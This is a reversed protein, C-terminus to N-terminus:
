CTAKSLQYYRHYYINFSLFITLVLQEVLATWGTAVLGIFMVMPIAVKRSQFLMWLGPSTRGGGCEMFFSYIYSVLAAILLMSGTVVRTYVSGSNQSSKEPSSQMAAAATQAAAALTESRHFWIGFALPTLLLYINSLGSSSATSYSSQDGLELVAAGAVALFPAMWNSLSAVFSPPSVISNGAIVADDGRPHFLKRKTALWVTELYAILPTVVVTLGSFFSVKSATSSQLALSQSLFGLSAWLGLELGAILARQQQDRKLLSFGNSLIRQNRKPFLRESLMSSVSQILDSLFLSSALFFRIGNLVGPKIGFEENDQLDKSVVYSLGYVAASM